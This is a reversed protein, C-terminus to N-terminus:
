GIGGTEERLWDVFRQVLRQRRKREPLVAYYGFPSSVSGAIVRSLLGQVLLEDVLHRWGIAQGLGASAAYILLSYNDFRLLGPAPAQHLDLEAFLGKWDFWRSRTEPKLHLLPLELLVEPTLPLARGKLLKPSCVPFVEERFLPLAEGHKFRGDGFALAVD